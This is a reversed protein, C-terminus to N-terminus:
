EKFKSIFQKVPIIIIIFIFIIINCIIKSRVLDTKTEEYPNFEVPIKMQAYKNYMQKLNISKM